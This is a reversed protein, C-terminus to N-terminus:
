APRSGTTLAARVEGALYLSGAVVVPGRPLQGAAIVAARVDPAEHVPATSHKRCVAALAAPSLARPSAPTTVVWDAAVPALAAVVEDVAKDAMVGILVPVPHGISESVFSALARAGAPNHAGDILVDGDPTSRWELRAPWDVDALASAMAHVPIEPWGAAPLSELVRVALVANDVQHRGALGVRLTPYHRVPTTLTLDSGRADVSSAVTSTDHSWIVTAGQAAAAATIVGRAEDPQPGVCVLAGPKIIGAKEGAIAQLTNGLYLQHDFDIPTIAAVSADVANTADLRGGLGVELVATDVRADAFALLAMATTAEFFSPPHSLAHGAATRVQAAYVDFQAATIARGNISIREEIHVLHPSTYRGTTLGTARLGREIMATTSGKGNTGAVTISRFRREPHGLAALLTTIQSLGLKIGIAELSFVWERATSTSM